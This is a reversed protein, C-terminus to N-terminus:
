PLVMKPEIQYCTQSKTRVYFDLFMKANVPDIDICLYKHNFSLLSSKFSYSDISKNFKM